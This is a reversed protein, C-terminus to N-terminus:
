GFLSLIFNYLCVVPFFILLVGIFKWTESEGQQYVRIQESNNPNVRIMINMGTNYTKKSTHSLTSRITQGRFDYEVDLTYTREGHEGPKSKRVISKIIGTCTETFTNEFDIAYEILLIGSLILLIFFYIKIVAGLM